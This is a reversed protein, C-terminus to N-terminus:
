FTCAHCERSPGIILFTSLICLLLGSPVLHPASAMSPDLAVYTENLTYPPSNAFLETLYMELSEWLNQEFRARTLSNPDLIALLGNEANALTNVPDFVIYKYDVRFIHYKWLTPNGLEWGKLQFQPHAWMHYINMVEFDLLTMNDISDAIAQSINLAFPAITENSANVSRRLEGTIDFSGVVKPRLWIVKWEEGERDLCQPSGRLLGFLCTWQGILQQMPGNCRVNCTEGEDMEEKCTNPRWEKVKLTANLCGNKTCNGAPRLKLGFRLWPTCRAIGAGLM